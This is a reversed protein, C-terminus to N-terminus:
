RLAHLRSVKGQSGRSPDFPRVKESTGQTRIGKWGRCARQFTCNCLRLKAVGNPDVCVLYRTVIVFRVPKVGRDAVSVRGPEAVRKSEVSAFFMPPPLRGTSFRRMRGPHPTGLLVAVLSRGRVVAASNRTELKSNRRWQARALGQKSYWEGTKGEALAPWNTGQWCPWPFVPGFRFARGAALPPPNSM